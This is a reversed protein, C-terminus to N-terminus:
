FVIWLRLHELQNIVNIVTSHALRLAAFFIKKFGPLPHCAQADDVVFPLAQQLARVCLAHRGHAVHPARESQVLRCVAQWLGWVQFLWLCTPWMFHNQKVDWFEYKYPKEGTHVRRHRQLDKGLRFSKGCSTEQCVFPKVQSHTKVHERLYQVNNFLRNCLPCSHM